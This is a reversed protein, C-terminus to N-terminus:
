FLDFSLGWKPTVVIGFLTKEAYRQSSGKAIGTPSYASSRYSSSDRVRVWKLRCDWLNWVRVGIIGENRSYGNVKNLPIKPM